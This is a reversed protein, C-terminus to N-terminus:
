NKRTDNERKKRFFTLTKRKKEELFLQIEGFNESGSHLISVEFHKLFVVAVRPLKPLPLNLDPAHYFAPKSLTFVFM